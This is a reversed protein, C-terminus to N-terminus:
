SLKLYLHFFIDSPSNQALENSHMGDRRVLSARGKRNKATETDRSRIKRKEGLSCDVPEPHRCIESNREHVDRTFHSLDLSVNLLLVQPIKIYQGHNRTLL